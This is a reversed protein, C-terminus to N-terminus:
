TNMNDINSLCPFLEDESRPNNGSDLVGIINADDGCPWVAVAGDELEGGVSARL